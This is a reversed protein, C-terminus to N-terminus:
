RSSDPAAPWPRLWGARLVEDAIAHAVIRHGRPNWHTDYRFGLTSDPHLGEYESFIPGLDLRLGTGPPPLDDLLEPAKFPPLVVLLFRAGHAASVRAMEVLLRHTLAYAERTRATTLLGAEAGDEGQGAELHAWRSALIGYLVFHRNLERTLRMSFPVRSPLTARELRLSDGQLLFRPKWYIGWATAKGNDLLDNPCFMLAVIDPHWSLGMERLQLLEQDTSYGAVGLNVVDTNPLLRSLLAASTEDDEVGHGFAFSDGLLLLRSRGPVRERPVRPGRFGDENITVHTDFDYRRFRVRRGPIQRWGRHPDFCMFLDAARAQREPSYRLNPYRLRVRIEALAGATVVAVVVLAAQIALTRLWRRQSGRPMMVEPM